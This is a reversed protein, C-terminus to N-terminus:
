KEVFTWVVCTKSRHLDPQINSHKWVPSWTLPSFLTMNIPFYIRLLSFFSGRKRQKARRDSFLWAWDANCPRFRANKQVNQLFDSKYTKKFEAVIIVQKKEAYKWNYFCYLLPTNNRLVARRVWGIGVKGVNKKTRRM